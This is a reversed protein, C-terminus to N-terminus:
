AARREVIRRSLARRGGQRRDFDIVTNIERRETTERRHDSRRNNALRREQDILMPTITITAWGGLNFSTTTRIPASEDLLRRLGIDTGNASTDTLKLENDIVSLTCHRRSIHGEPICIDCDSGRGISIPLSGEKVSFRTGDELQVRALVRSETIDTIGL